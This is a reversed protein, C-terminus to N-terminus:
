PYLGYIALILQLKFSKLSFQICWFQLFQVTRNSKKLKAMKLPLFLVADNEHSTGTHPQYMLNTRFRSAYRLVACASRSIPLSNGHRRPHTEFGATLLPPTERLNAGDNPHLLFESSGWCIGSPIHNGKGYVDDSLSAV